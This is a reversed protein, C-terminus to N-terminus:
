QNGCTVLETRTYRGSLRVMVSSSSTLSGIMTSISRLRLETSGYVHADCNVDFNSEVEGCFSKVANHSKSFSTIVFTKGNMIHEYIIAKDQQTYM